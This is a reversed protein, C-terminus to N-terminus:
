LERPSWELYQTRFKENCSGDVINELVTGEGDKGDTRSTEVDLEETEEVSDGMLLSIVIM